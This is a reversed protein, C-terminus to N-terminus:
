QDGETEDEASLLHETVSLAIGSMMIEPAMQSFDGSLVERNVNAYVSCGAGKEVIVGTVRNGHESFFVVEGLSESSVYGSCNHLQIHTNATYISIMSMKDEGTSAEPYIELALKRKETENNLVLRYHDVRQIAQVGLVKEITAIDDPTFKFM